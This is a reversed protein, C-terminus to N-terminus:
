KCCWYFFVLSSYNQHIGLDNPFFSALFHLTISKPIRPEKFDLVTVLPYPWHKQSVIIPLLPTKSSCASSAVWTTLSLPLTDFDSISHSYYVQILGRPQRVSIVTDEERLETSLRVCFSNLALVPLSWGEGLRSWVFTNLFNRKSKAKSVVMVMLPPDLPPAWERDLNNWKWAIKPLSKPFLLSACGEKPLQHGSEPFDHIWWQGHRVKVRISSYIVSWRM